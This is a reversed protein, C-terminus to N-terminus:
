GKGSADAGCLTEALRKRGACWPCLTSNLSQLLMRNDIEALSYKVQRM